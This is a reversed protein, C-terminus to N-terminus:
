QKRQTADKPEKGENRRRWAEGIAYVPFFACGVILFVVETGVALVYFRFLYAARRM